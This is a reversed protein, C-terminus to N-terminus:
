LDQDTLDLVSKNVFKDNYFAQTIIKYASTNFVSLMFRSLNFQTPSLSGKFSNKGGSASMFLVKNGM